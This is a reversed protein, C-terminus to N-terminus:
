GAPSVRGIVPQVARAEEGVELIVGRGYVRARVSVAVLLLLYAGTVADQQWTDEAMAAVLLVALCEVIVLAHLFGVGVRVGPRSRHPRGLMSVSVILDAMRLTVLLDGALRVDDPPCNCGEDIRLTAFSAALAVLGAVLACASVVVAGTSRRWVYAVPIAM